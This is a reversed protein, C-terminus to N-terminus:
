RADAPPRRAVADAVSRARRRAAGPDPRGFGAVVEAGDSAGEPGAPPRWHRGSRVRTELMQAFVELRDVRGLLSELVGAMAALVDGPGAGAGGQERAQGIRAPGRGTLLWDASVGLAACVAALFEVSPAQGQMYRRVTEPHHGTLDGVARYTRDGAVERLRDHLASSEM